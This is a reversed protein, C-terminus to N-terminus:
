PSTEEFIASYIGDTGIMPKKKLSVRKICFPINETPYLQFTRGSQTVARGRKIAVIKSIEYPSLEVICESLILQEKFYYNFIFIAMLATSFMVVLLRYKKIILFLVIAIIFILLIIFINLSM